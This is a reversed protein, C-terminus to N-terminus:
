ALTAAAPRANIRALLANLSTPMPVNHAVAWTMVYWAAIDAISFTGLLYDRDGLIQALQALGSEAVGRGHAVLAAQAAPDQVFKGPVLIFTFGRMHISAVIFDIVELARLEDEPTPGVLCADPFARAVWLSIVPFETLVSGDPRVLAPVKGKPNLALYEPSRHAGKALETVVLEYPAGAEALLLRIGESCSNPSHFLKM